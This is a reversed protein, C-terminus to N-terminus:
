INRPRIKTRFRVNEGNYTAALDITFLSSAVSCLTTDSTKINSAKVVGSRLLNTGSITYAVTSGGSLFTLTTANCASYSTAARLEKSILELAQSLETRIKSRDESANFARLCSTYVVGISVILFATLAITIILEIVTFGRKNGM